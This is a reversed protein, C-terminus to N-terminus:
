DPSEQERKLGALNKIVINRGDVELYGEAQLRGLNRSILERVTGLEAALDQQSKTLEIRVGEVSRHPSAQALRLLLAILRQRVTSFSLDEIIGVLRRLRSGVVAIVKLGVEPHDRCFDQFDKRSVFLVESDEFASASAPYNGGDFVPLEAFSSGPGEIALVQERGNASVKFIRIKGRAVLFLGRCPDGEHFLIEGRAFRRSSVRRLLGDMEDDSLAAFLAAKRLVAEIASHNAHDASGPSKM